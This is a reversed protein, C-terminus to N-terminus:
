KRCIHSILIFGLKKKQIVSATEGGLRFHFKMGSCHEKLDVMLLQAICTFCVIVFVEQSAVWLTIAALSM